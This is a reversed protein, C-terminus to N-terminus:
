QILGCSVGDGAGGDENGERSRFQKSVGDLCCHLALFKEESSNPLDAAVYLYVIVSDDQYVIVSDFARM